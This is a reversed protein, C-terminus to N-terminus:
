KKHAAKCSKRTAKKALHDLTVEHLKEQVVDTLMKWLVHGGCFKSRECRKNDEVCEVFITPGDLANKIMAATIEEPPRALLYGGKAGRFSRVLGASKLTALLNELYKKSIDEHASIDKVLVPKEDGKQALYIMARLGYRVKTSIKM